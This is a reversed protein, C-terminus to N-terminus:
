AVVFVDVAELLQEVIAITPRQEGVIVCLAFKGLPQNGLPQDLRQLGSSHRAIVCADQFDTEAAAVNATNPNTVLVVVLFRGNGSIANDIRGAWPSVRQGNVGADACRMRQNATDTTRMNHEGTKCASGSRRQIGFRYVAPRDEYHGPVALQQDSGGLYACRGIACLRRVEFDFIQQGREVPEERVQAARSGVNV